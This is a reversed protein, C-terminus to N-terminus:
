GPVACRTAPSLYSWTCMYVTVQCGPRLIGLSCGGKRGPAFQSSGPMQDCRAFVLLSVPRRSWIGPSTRWRWSLRQCRPLVSRHLWCGGSSSLADGDMM